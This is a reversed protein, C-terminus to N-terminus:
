AGLRENLRKSRGMALAIGVLLLALGGIAPGSLAPVAPAVNESSEPVFAVLDFNVQGELNRTDLYAEYTNRDVVSFLSLAPATVPVAGILSGSGPAIADPPSPIFDALRIKALDDGGSASHHTGVRFHFSDVDERDLIDLGFAPIGNYATTRTVSGVTVSIEYSLLVNEPTLTAFSTRTPESVYPVFESDLVLFGSLDLGQGAFVGTAFTVRGLFDLRVPAAGSTAPVVFFFLIVAALIVRM